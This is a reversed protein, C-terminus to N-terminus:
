PIDTQIDKNTTTVDNNCTNGETPMSNGETPKTVANHGNIHESAVSKENNESSTITAQSGHVRNETAPENNESHTTTVVGSDRTVLGSNLAAIRQSPQTTLSIKRGNNRTSDTIIYM